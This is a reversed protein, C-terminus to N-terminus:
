AARRRAAGPGALFRVLTRVPVGTGGRRGSTPRGDRRVGPGRHGPAGVAHRGVFEALFWAATIAGGYREGINKIDAVNSDILARYDDYLPLQWTPEGSRTAPRSSTAACTADNGM